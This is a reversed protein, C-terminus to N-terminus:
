QLFETLTNDEKKLLINMKKLKHDPMYTDWINVFGFHKCFDVYYTYKCNGKTKRVSSKSCPIITNCSFKILEMDNEFDKCLPYIYAHLKKCKDYYSDDFSSVAGASTVCKKVIFKDIKLANKNIGLELSRKLIWEDDAQKFLTWEKDIDVEDLKLIDPPFIVGAYGYFLIDNRPNELINKYLTTKKYPSTKTTRYCCSRQIRYWLIFPQKSNVVSGDLGNICNPNYKEWFENIVDEDYLNDDDLIMIPDKKYKKLPLLKNTSGYNIETINFEIKDKYKDYVQKPFLAFDDNTMNLIFHYKEYFGISFNDLFEGITSFRKYWTAVSIIKM